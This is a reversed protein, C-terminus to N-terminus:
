PLKNICLCMPIQCHPPTHTKPFYYRIIRICYFLLPCSNKFNSLVRLLSLFILQEEKNPDPLPLTAKKTKCVYGLREREREGVSLCLRMETNRSLPYVIFPQLQRVYNDTLTGKSGDAEEEYLWKSDDGNVGFLPGM